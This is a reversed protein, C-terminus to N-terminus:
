GELKEVVTAVFEQRDLDRYDYTDEFWEVIPDKAGERAMRAVKPSANCLDVIRGLVGEAASHGPHYHARLWGFYLAVMAPDAEEYKMRTDSTSLVGDELAALLHAYIRTEHEFAM